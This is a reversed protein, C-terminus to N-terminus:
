DIEDKAKEMRDAQESISKAILKPDVGKAAFKLARQELAQAPLQHARAAAITALVQQAISPPLVEQLRASPDHAPTQAGASTAAIFVGAGIATLIRSHRIVKVEIQHIGNYLSQSVRKRDCEIGFEKMQPENFSSFASQEESSM